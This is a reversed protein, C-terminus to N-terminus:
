PAWLCFKLNSCSSELVSEGHCFPIVEDQLILELILTGVYLYAVCSVCTCVYICQM